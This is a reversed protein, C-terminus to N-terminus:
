NLVEDFENVIIETENHILEYLKVIIETKEKNYHIHGQVSIQMGKNFRRAKDSMSNWFLLTHKDTRIKANTDCIRETVLECITYRKGDKLEITQVVDLLRGFLEVKNIHRKM